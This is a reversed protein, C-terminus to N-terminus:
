EFKELKIKGNGDVIKKIELETQKIQKECFELLEIGRKFKDVSEKLPMEGEELDAIIREANELAQEFTKEKM